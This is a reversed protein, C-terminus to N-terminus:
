SKPGPNGPRDTCFFVGGQEGLVDRAVEEYLTSINGHPDGLNDNWFQVVEHAFAFYALPNSQTVEQPIEVGFSFAPNGKFAACLLNFRTQPKNAPIVSISVSVNGFTKTEPLLQSLADSKDQGNVFLRITMSEDDFVIKEVDPDKGFLENLERYYTLWPASLKLNANESDNNKIM